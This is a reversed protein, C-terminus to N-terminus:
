DESFSNTLEDGGAAAYNDALLADSNAGNEYFFTEYVYFGDAGGDVDLTISSTYWTEGSATVTLTCALSTIDSTVAGDAWGKAM